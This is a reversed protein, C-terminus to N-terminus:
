QPLLTPRGFCKEIKAVQKEEVYRFMAKIDTKNNFIYSKLVSTFAEILAEELLKAAPDKLYREQLPNPDMKRARKWIIPHLNKSRRKLAYYVPTWTSQPVRYLSLAQFLAGEEFFTEELNRYCKPTVDWAALCLPFLILTLCFKIMSKM